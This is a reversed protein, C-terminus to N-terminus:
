RQREGLCVKLLTGTTSYPFNRPLVQSTDRSSRGPREVTGGAGFGYVLFSKEKKQLPKPRHAESPSNFQFLVLRSSITPPFSVTLFVSLVEETSSREQPPTRTQPLLDPLVGSSRHAGGGFHNAPQRNRESSGGEAQNNNSSSGNRSM